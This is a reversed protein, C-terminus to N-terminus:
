RSRRIASIIASRCRLIAPLPRSRARLGSHRTPQSQSGSCAREGTTHRSRSSTPPKANASSMAGLGRIIKGCGCGTDPACELAVLLGARWSRLMTGPGHIALLHWVVVPHHQAGAYRAKGSHNARKAPELKASALRCIGGRLPIRASWGPPCHENRSVMQTPLAAAPLHKKALM